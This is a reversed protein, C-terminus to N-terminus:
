YLSVSSHCCVSPPSQPLWEGLYMWQRYARVSDSSAFSPMRVVRERQEMMMYEVGSPFMANFQSSSQTFVCEHVVLLTGDHCLLTVDALSSGQVAQDLLRQCTAHTGTLHQQNATNLEEIRKLLRSTRRSVPPRVPCSDDDNQESSQESDSESSSSMAQVSPVGNRFACWRPGSGVTPDGLPPGDM